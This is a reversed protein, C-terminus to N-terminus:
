KIQFMAEQETFKQIDWKQVEKLNDYNFRQL